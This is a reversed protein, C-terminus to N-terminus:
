IIAIEEPDGRVPIKLRRSLVKVPQRDDRGSV